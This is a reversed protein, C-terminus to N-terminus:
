FHYGIDLGFGLGGFNVNHEPFTFTTQSRGLRGYYSGTMQFSDFKVPFVYKYCLHVLVSLHQGLFHEYEAFVCSGIGKKSFSSSDKAGWSNLAKEDFLEYGLHVTELGAAAGINWAYTEGPFTPITKQIKKSSYVFGAYYSGGKYNGKLHFFAFGDDFRKLGEINWIAAPNVTLRLSCRPSLSYEVKFSMLFNAQTGKPYEETYAGLGFFGPHYLMFAYGWNTLLKKFNGGVGGSLFYGAEVRIHFRDFKDQASVPSSLIAWSLCTSTALLILFRHRWAKKGKSRIKGNKM